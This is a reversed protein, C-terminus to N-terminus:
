SLIKRLAFGIDQLMYPKRVYAGVGIRLATRVRETESFGSAILAKIGARLESIAEFTDLGDMGPMIMDLLVADVSFPSRKLYDVAEEGSAVTVAKYGLRVLIGAAIERQEAVDDVVLVTEGNGLYGALPVNDQSPTPLDDTAPFYLTFTTGKMEESEVFIYGNHDQVTGWVVAMGLGSGSRGMVKRTFFPEFIRQLDEEPIGVGSDSVELCAYTGPPMQSPNRPPREFTCTKLRITVAGDQPQAEIANIVLNLLSKKLHVTSGKIYVPQPTLEARVEVGPYRTLLEKHEASSLHEEIVTNISVTNMEQVNRRALALLDQVIEAAKNGTQRIMELPKRLPSEESLDLLLLDPYSVIGSLVNNLDHAVGSALLGIAEMKKSQALRAQLAEKEKQAQIRGSIDRSIGIIGVPQGDEGQLFAGRTEMQLYRGDKCRMEINLTAAKNFGGSQESESLLAEILTSAEELTDDSLVDAVNRGTLEEVSWDLLTAAAPSIYTINLKMDLSWLIDSLNEALLRYKEESAKLFRETQKRVDVEKVLNDNAQRARLLVAQLGRTLGAVSFAVMGNLFIFNCAATIARFVSAPAPQGAAADGNFHLLGFLTLTLANIVIAFVASKFGLLTGAIVAFSFLWVPGGSMVGLQATVWVGLAYMTTLIIAVRTRYTLSPVMLLGALVVYAALDFVALPWYGSGLLFIVSPILVFLGVIVSVAVLHQLMRSRWYDLGESENMEPVAFRDLIIHWLRLIRNFTIPSHAKM